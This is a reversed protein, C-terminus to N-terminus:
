YDVGVCVYWAGGPTIYLWGGKNNCRTTIGDVTQAGSTDLVIDLRWGKPMKCHPRGLWEPWLVKGRHGTNCTPLPRTVTVPPILQAGETIQDAHAAGAAGFLSALMIAGATLKKRM